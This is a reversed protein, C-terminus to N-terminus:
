SAETQEARASAFGQLVADFVLLIAPHRAPYDRASELAAFGAFRGAPPPGEGKLMAKVTERGAVIEAETAGVVADALIAASAQGLACAEVQQAYDAVAGDEIGLDVTVTAGCLRSHAKATVDPRQLRGVRPMNAALDLVTRDYIPFTALASTKSSTPEILM